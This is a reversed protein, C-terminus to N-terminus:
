KENHQNVQRKNESHCTVDVINSLDLMARAYSEAFQRDISVVSQNLWEQLNVEIMDKDIEDRQYAQEFMYMTPYIDVDRVNKVMTGCKLNM